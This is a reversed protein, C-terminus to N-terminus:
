SASSIPIINNNKGLRKLLQPKHMHYGQAYDIGIEQVIRLIDEDEVSGAITKLNMAHGVENIAKVIAYSTPENAINIIFSSDIKLYNISM